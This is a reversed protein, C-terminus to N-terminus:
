DSFKNFELIFNTGANVESKVQVTAKHSQFISQSAALGLGMGNKKMTFFPEFLKSISEQPIGYGNDKISVVYIDSQEKMVIKLVGKGAEMAEVANIIINTFAIKLKSKDASIFCPGPPLEKEVTIKQLNIRDIAVSLSEELIDQLSNKEFQLDLPKTSDLLETIIQNIRVSNRKIIDILPKQKEDGIKIHDASLSINNLPNRIEHALIRVLRENAALKETQLNAKEARKLNTIDHLIGHVFFGDTKGQELSITLICAKQDGTSDVIDIELDNVNWGNIILTEIKDKDNKESIFEYLSKSLLADIPHGFLVSATANVEKFSLNKDAIFLADKSQSFLNRYKNESGKLAKLSQTRDISYRICRELKETTLESKILYDTAGNKMAEVDISKNGKGTLLIIPCECDMRVAEKLLQLGTENGLRYDVFYVDYSASRIKKIADNYEKCWDITFTNGEIEKIYDSIFFYDDEDDDVVLIKTKLQEM